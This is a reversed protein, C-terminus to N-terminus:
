QVARKKFTAADAAIRDAFTKSVKHRTKTKRKCDAGYIQIASNIELYKIYNLPIDQSIGKYIYSYYYFYANTYKFTYLFYIDSKYFLYTFFIVYKEYSYFLSSNTKHAIYVSLKRQM